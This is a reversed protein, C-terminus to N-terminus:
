ATRRQQETGAQKEATDRGNRAAVLEAVISIAIEQPTEANIPIGIPAHIRSIAAEDAGEERLRECIIGVKRRSGIMGAYVVPMRIIRSLVRWDTEHGRTVIVVYQEGTFGLRDIASGFDAALIREAGPFRESNAFAPRDDVVTVGFDAMAAITAVVQAVHGAGFIYLPSVDRVPDALVEGKLAPRRADLLGAAWSLTQEDIADGEVKMGGDLVSKAYAGPAFRTVVVGRQGAKRLDRVKRYVHGRQATVPEFLIEVRGGCLMATDEVSRGEMSVAAVRARGDHMMSRAEDYALSELRGGGVTGFSSGDEGVFMKAGVDRPASGSRGIVTALVGEKGDDVYRCVDDYIKM